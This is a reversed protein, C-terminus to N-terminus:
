APAGGAAAVLEERIAAAAAPWTLTRAREFGAERLRASTGDDGIVRELAASLAKADGPVMLAADGAAEDLATGSVSVVPVGCAMAEVVPLGFGEHSSSMILARAGRYLAVLTADDVHGVDLCHARPPEPGPPGCRVLIAPQGQARVDAVAAAALAGGKHSEFAGVQLVYPEAVGVGVARRRGADADQEQASAAPRFRPDIGQHVIRIRERPVDLWRECEAATFESVAVLRAAHRASARMWRRYYRAWGPADAEPMRFAKCDHIVVVAPVSGWAPIINAAGLYVDCRQARVALPVGIQNWATAKPFRLPVERVRGGFLKRRQLSNYYVILEDPEHIQAELAHLLGDLYRGLGQTRWRLHSGDAGVKM